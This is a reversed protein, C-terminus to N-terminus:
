ISYINVARCISLCGICKNPYEGSQIGVTISKRQRAAYLTARLEIGFVRMLTLTLSSSSNPPPLPAYYHQCHAHCWNDPLPNFLFLYLPGRTSYNSTRIETWTFYNWKSGSPLCYKGFFSSAVLCPFFSLVLSLSPSFAARAVPQILTPFHRLLTLLSDINALEAYHLQFRSKCARKIAENLTAFTGFQNRISKFSNRVKVKNAFM